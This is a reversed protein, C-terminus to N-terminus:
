QLTLSKIWNALMRKGFPSLIAEPHFQVGWVPLQPHAVAMVEGIESRAIVKLETSDVDEVMLSHYRCVEIKGELGSFLSHPEVELESVKGHMPYPARVLKAGYHQAIAQMGLCVGFIPLKGAYQAIVDLCIGAKDPTGPGPSIIIGDYAAIQDVSIQDNRVVEIEVGLQEFYDKLNYTFSDYNDILVLM